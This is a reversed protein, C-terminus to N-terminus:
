MVTEIIEQNAHIIKNLETKTLGSIHCILELNCGKEFMSLVMKEIALTQGIEIGRAEGRAEAKKLANAEVQYWKLNAEYAEREQPTFNMINLVNLAKQIHHQNIEKPLNNQNLLDQRTLFAVWIDLSSKIKTLLESLETSTNGSFKKLEITHLELDKFYPIKTEKETLHFVNHYKDSELISTFNLIHIGIGKSLM